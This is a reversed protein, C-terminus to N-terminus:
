VWVMWLVLMSIYRVNPIPRGIKWDWVARTQAIETHKQPSTPASLWSRAELGNPARNRPRRVRGSPVMCVGHRGCMWRLLSSAVSGLRIGSPAAVACVFTALALSKFCPMRKHWSSSNERELALCFALNQTSLSSPKPPPFHHFTDDSPSTAATLPLIHFFRPLLSLESEHYM